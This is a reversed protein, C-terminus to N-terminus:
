KVEQDLEQLKELVEKYVTQLRQPDQQLWHMSQTFADVDYGKRTLLQGYVRQFLTDQYAPALERGAPELLLAETIIDTLEPLPIIPGPDVEEKQCSGIVLWLFTSILLFPLLRWYGTNM